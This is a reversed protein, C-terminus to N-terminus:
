IVYNHSIFYIFDSNVGTLYGIRNYVFINKEGGFLVLYRIINYVRIFGDKKNFIVCLNLLLRLKTHFTIFPFIKSPHKM